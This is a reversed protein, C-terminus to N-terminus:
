HSTSTQPPLTSSEAAYAELVAARYGIRISWWKVYSGLAETRCVTM